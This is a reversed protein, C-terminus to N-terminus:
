EGNGDKGKLIKAIQAYNSEPNSIYQEIREIAHGSKRWAEFLYDIIFKVEKNRVAQIWAEINDAGLAEFLESYSFIKILTYTKDYESHEYVLLGEAYEDANERMDAVLRAVRDKAYVEDEGKIPLGLHIANKADWNLDWNKDEYQVQACRLVSEDYELSELLVDDLHNEQSYRVHLRNRIFLGIALSNGVMMRDIAEKVSADYEEMSIIGDFKEVQSVHLMNSLQRDLELGGIKAYAYILVELYRVLREKYGIWREDHMCLYEIISRRGSETRMHIDCFEEGKAMTKATMMEDMDESYIKGAIWDHFYNDFSEARCIRNYMPTGLRYTSEARAFLYELLGAMDAIKSSASLTKYDEKLEWGDKEEFIKGPHQIYQKTYLAYYSEIDLFRILTVIACDGFDVHQKIKSYTSRFLNIYRKAMRMNTLHSLLLRRTYPWENVNVVYRMYGDDKLVIDVWQKMHEDVFERVPQYTHRFMPMEYQFYKDTFYSPSDYGIQKRLVSNVYSKDYATLFVTNCFNGNADILKLVEIIEQGTLRDLDEIIVFVRKGTTRIMDNIRDKESESTWDQFLSLVSFMWKTSSHLNLAYAYKGIIYHADFSYKNLEHKFVSFFEEQILGANKANRPAFRVVIQGAEKQQKAFLNLLSSKGVGWEGAIGVSFASHNLDVADLRGKLEEAITYYDLKDEYENEIADDRLLDSNRFADRIEFYLVRVIYSIAFLLLLGDLIYLIDFWVWGKYEWFEIPSQPNYRYYTYLITLISWLLWGRYTLHANKKIHNYTYAIVGVGITTYLGIIAYEKSLPEIWKQTWEIIIEDIHVEIAFWAACFCIIISFFMYINKGVMERIRRGIYPFLGDYIEDIGAVEKVLESECVCM